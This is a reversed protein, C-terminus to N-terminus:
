SNILWLGAVLTLAANPTPTPAPADDVQIVTTFVANVVSSYSMLLITVDYKGQALNAPLQLPGSTM